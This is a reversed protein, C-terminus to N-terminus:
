VDLAPDSVIKEFTVLIDPYNQELYARATNNAIVKRFYGSLKVLNFVNDKFGNSARKFEEEMQYLKGSLEKRQEEMGPRKNEQSKIWQGEPTSLVLTRAYRRSFDNAANLIEVIEIQRRQTVKKLDDYVLRSVHHERLINVISPAIGVLLSDMRQVWRNKVNLTAAIKDVGVGDSIAKNIMAHTESPSLPNVRKNYTYVDDDTGILCEVTEIKLEQLAKWRLVGDKIYYRGEKEIVVLPEILGIEKISSVIRRYVSGWRGAVKRTFMPYLSSVPLVVTTPHFSAEKM